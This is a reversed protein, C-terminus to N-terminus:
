KPWGDGVKADVKCPVDIAQEMGISMAEKIEPLFEDLENDAVCAPLEDHVQACVYGNFVDRNWAELMGM